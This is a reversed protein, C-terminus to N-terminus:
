LTHYDLLGYEVYEGDHFYENEFLHVRTKNVGILAEGLYTEVKALSDVSTTVHLLTRDCCLLSWEM